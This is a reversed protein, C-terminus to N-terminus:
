AAKLQAIILKERELKADAKKQALQDSKLKREAIAQDVIKQCAKDPCVTQTYFATTNGVKEKWSKGEIREKGCEICPNNM